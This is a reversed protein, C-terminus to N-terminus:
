QFRFIKKMKWIIKRRLRGKREWVIRSMLKRMVDQQLDVQKPNHKIWVSLDVVAFDEISSAEALTLRLTTLSLKHKCHLCDKKKCEDEYGCNIHTKQM